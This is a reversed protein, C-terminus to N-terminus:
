TTHAFVVARVADEWSVLSRQRHLNVHPYWISQDGESFWHWIGRKGVLVHTRVGLAGALHVSANSVSVFTDVATLQAAAHDMNGALDLDEDIHGQFGLQQRVQRFAEAGEGYQACVFATGPLDLIPQLADIPVSKSGGTTRSHSAWALAIIKRGPYLRQYRERLKTRLALDPELYATGPSPREEEYIHLEGIPCFADASAAVETGQSVLALGPMSRELIPHLRKDCAYTVAVGEAILRPLMRAYLIQAGIGQDGTLHLRTGPEPWAALRPTGNGTVPDRLRALATRERWGESVDGLVLQTLGHLTRMEENAPDMACVRQLYPLAAQPEGLTAHVRAIDAVCDPDNPAQALSREALDVLERADHKSVLTQEGAQQCLLSVLHRLDRHDASGFTLSERAYRIARPLDELATYARALLRCNDHRPAQAHDKLLAETAERQRNLKRLSVGLNFYAKPHQPDISAARRYAEVAHEHEGGSAYALGLNYHVNADGRALAALPRLLKLAQDAEGSDLHLAALSLSVQRHRPYKRRLKAYMPRARPLDGAQHLAQASAFRAHDKASM